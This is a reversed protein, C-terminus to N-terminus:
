PYTHVEDLLFARYKQTGKPAIGAKKYLDAVDIPDKLHGQIYQTADESTLFQPILGNKIAFHSFPTSPVDVHMCRKGAFLAQIAVTSRHCISLDAIAIAEFTSLKRGDSIFFKPFNDYQSSLKELAQKEFSGDSRPHLQVILQVPRNLASLSNAFTEFSDNYGNGKEEYGSIYTLIPPDSRFSIKALADSRDILAIKEEWLDLTPQGLASAKDSHFHANLDQAIEISPVLVVNAVKMMKEVNAVLDAPLKDYVSFNDWVAIVRSGKKSFLEAIQRQPTSYMGTVLISTSLTNLKELDNATLEHLRQNAPCSVGLSEISIAHTLAADSAIKTATGMTLVQFNPADEWSGLVQIWINTEGADFGVFLLDVKEKAFLASSLFIFLFLLQKM